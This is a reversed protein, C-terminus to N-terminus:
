MGLFKLLEFVLFAPWFLAKLGGVVMGLLDPATTVYYALAGIFGLGYFAGGSGCGADPRKMLWPKCKGSECEKEMKKGVAKGIEEWTPTKSTEKKMGILRRFSDQHFLMDM